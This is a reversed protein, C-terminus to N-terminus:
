RAAHDIALGLSHDHIGEALSYFDPGGSAYDGMKALCTAIATEDDALRAPFFPNEYVFSDGLTIGRLSFGELNGGRGAERRLFPAEIPTRFDALWRASQLDMEGRDGRALLRNARVWSFYQDGSFDFVGTQGGEFRLTALTQRSDGSAEETPFGHRDPGKVLPASFTEARIEVPGVGVGLLRRLVAIGHYGHAVSVQAHSIKGLKGSRAVAIRAALEPQFPYQEAVQIRANSGVAEALARMADVSPAPPTESLTPVGRRHLDILFSANGSWSVSTVAFDPRTALASELDPVCRVGFHTVLEDAREPRRAVVASVAFREPLAAAVRLFFEARWGSGVIVFRNM